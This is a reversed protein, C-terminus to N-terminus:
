NNRGYSFYEQIVDLDDKRPTPRDELKTMFYCGEGSSSILFKEKGAKIVHLTKRPEITLSTEVKLFNNKNKEPNLMLTKKVVILGVFIIGILALTYVSFATIYSSM